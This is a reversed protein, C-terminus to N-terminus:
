VGWNCGREEVDGLFVSATSWGLIVPPDICGCDFVALGEWYDAVDHISDLVGLVEALKVYLPSEVIDMDFFSILPLSGEDTVSALEFGSDHEQVRYSALL